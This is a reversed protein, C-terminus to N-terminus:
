FIGKGTTQLNAVTWGRKTECESFNMLVCSKCYCSLHRTKIQMTSPTCTVSHIKRTGQVAKVTKRQSHEMRYTEVQEKDLLLYTRNEASLNKTAERYADSANHLVVQQNIVLKDLGHKTTAGVGDCAGKGEGSEFYNYTCKMGYKSPFEALDRFAHKSKYQSACQDSWRHVHTFTHGPYKNKLFDITKETVMEVFATDHVIDDSLFCLNETQLEQNVEPIYAVVPHVTIQRQTWHYSMIEDEYKIAYNEAFDLWLIMENEPLTKKLQRLQAYQHNARFVHGRFCNLSHIFIDLFDSFITQKVELSWQKKEITEGSKGKITYPVLTWERYKITEEGSLGTTLERIQDAGCNGCNGEACTETLRCVTSMVLDHTTSVNELNKGRARAYAHLADLKKQMNSHHICVAIPRDTNRAKRVNRPVSQRFTNFSYPYGPNQTKFKSFLSMLTDKLLRKENGNKNLRKSPDVRSNDDEQFFHSIAQSWKSSEVKDRRLKYKMRIKSSAHLKRWVSTSPRKYRKAITRITARQANTLNVTLLQRKVPSAKKIIRDVVAAWKRPSKPMSKRARKCAVRVANPSIQDNNANKRHYLKSLRDLKNKLKKIKENKAMSRTIHRKENNRRKKQSSISQRYKAKRIRENERKEKSKRDKKSSSEKQKENKRQVRKALRQCEKYSRDLTVDNKRDTKIKMQYKKDSEKQNFKYQEHKIPDSKVKMRYKEVRLKTLRKKRERASEKEDNLETERLHVRLSFPAPM